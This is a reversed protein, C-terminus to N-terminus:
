TTALNGSTTLEDAGGALEIQTAVIPPRLAVDISISAHRAWASQCSLRPVVRMQVIHRRPAGDLKGNRREWLLRAAARGMEDFPLQLSTLLQDQALPDNDFGVIAPWAARPAGSARLAALLELALRDNAAVVATVDGRAILARVTVAFEGCAAASVSGDSLRVALELADQHPHFALDDASVGAEHLAERWGTEREESWYLLHSERRAAHMALFAIKQYGRRLLHRTAVRGGETDDFSILDYGPRAESLRAASVRAAIQQGHLELAPQGLAYASDYFGALPPLEGRECRAIADGKELTLVADGRAAIAEEFGSQIQRFRLGNLNGDTTILLYFEADRSAPAGAFTGVRAVCHLVGEENLKKLEQRITFQSLGYEEALARQSQALEGARWGEGGRSARLDRRLREKRKATEARTAM